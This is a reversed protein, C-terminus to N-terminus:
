LQHVTIKCIKVFCIISHYRNRMYDIDKGNSCVKPTQCMFNIGSIPHTKQAELLHGKNSVRSTPLGLNVCGRIHLYIYM